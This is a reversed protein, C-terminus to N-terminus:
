ESINLCVTVCAFLCVSPFYTIFLLFSLSLSPSAFSLFFFIFPLCLLLGATRGSQSTKLRKVTLGPADNPM